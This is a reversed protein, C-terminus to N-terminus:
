KVFKRRNFVLSTLWQKMNPIMEQDNMKENFMLAIVTACEQIPYYGGM